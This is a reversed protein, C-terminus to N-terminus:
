SRQQRHQLRQAIWEGAFTTLVFSEADAADTILENLAEIADPRKMPNATTLKRMIKDLVVKNKAYSQNQSFERFMSLRKLVGVLLVGIAWADVQPWYTQFLKVGNKSRMAHSSELFVELETAAKQKSTGLLFQIDQFIKKQNIVQEPLDSDTLGARLAWFLSVEPPEQFYQFDPEHAYFQLLDPTLDKPIMALGFDIIRPVNYEDV